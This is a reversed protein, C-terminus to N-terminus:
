VNEENTNLEEYAAEFMSKRKLILDIIDLQGKRFFLDQTDTTLTVDNISDKIKAFDELLYKWGDTSFMDFSSEYYEQLEPNNVM